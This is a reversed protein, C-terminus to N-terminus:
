YTMKKPNQSIFTFASKCIGAGSLEAMGRQPVEDTMHKSMMAQQGV